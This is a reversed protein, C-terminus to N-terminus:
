KNKAAQNVFRAKEQPTLIGQDVLSSATHAVCSVYQGHNVFNDAECTLAIYEAGSCGEPTIFSGAPTAPCQDAQNLVGDGDVDADCADGIGNSNFDAQDLNAVLPCNDTLDSVGDNDDDPDCVDGLGDNDSDAQDTNPAFPCNDANDEVSDGDVDSDCVDGLGDNDADAQDANAFAPCNDGANAVGDGDLDPDCVDGLGDDDQDLQDSNPTSPCNDNGDALGDGDSDPPPPVGCTITFSNGGAVLVNPDQPNGTNIACPHLVEFIESPGGVSLNQLLYNIGDVVVFTLSGTVPSIVYNSWWSIQPDEPEVTITSNRFTITNGLYIFSDMASPVAISTNDGVNGDADVRYHINSTTILLVYGVAPVLVHSSPESFYVPSGPYQSAAGLRYTGQYQDPDFNVITNKYRITPTNGPSNDFIVAGSSDPLAIAIGVHGNADVHFAAGDFQSGIAVVYDTAPVLVVSAPGNLDLFGGSEGRSMAHRGLYQDPDLNVITNKFIITPNPSTSNDFDCSDFSAINPFSISGDSNVHFLNYSPGSNAAGAAIMYDLGPVLVFDPTGTVAPIRLFGYRGIFQVPDVTVTTNKFKLTDGLFEASEATDNTPDLALDQIVTGSANVEFYIRNEVVGTQVNGVNLFYHGSVLDVTKNGSEYTFTGFNGRWKGTYTGTDITVNFAFAPGVLFLSLGVIVLCKLIPKKFKM